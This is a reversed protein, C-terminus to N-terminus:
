LDLIERTAGVVGTGIMVGGAIMGPINGSFMLATGGAVLAFDVALTVPKSFIRNQPTLHGAMELRGHGNIQM